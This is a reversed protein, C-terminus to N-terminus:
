MIPACSTRPTRSKHMPLEEYRPLKNICLNGLKMQTLEATTWDISVEPVDGSVYERETGRNCISREFSEDEPTPLVIDATVTLKDMSSINGAFVSNWTERHIAGGHIERMISGDPRKVKLTWLVKVFSYAMGNIRVGEMRTFGCSPTTFEVTTTITKM